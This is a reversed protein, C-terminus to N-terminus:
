RNKAMRVVVTLLGLILIALDVATGVGIIPPIALEGTFQSAIGTATEGLVFPLSLGVFAKAIATKNKGGNWPRRRSSWLGVVALIIAFAAAVYPKFNTEKTATLLRAHVHLLKDSERNGLWDVSRFTFNHEGEPVTFGGSFVTWNGGDVKYETFGVGCGDDFADLAFVTDTTADESSPTISTSPPTEDLFYIGATSQTNALLDSSRYDVTKVGDIGQLTFDITYAKWQGDDIRYEIRDLGVPLMGSDTCSLNFQTTSDVYTPASLYQPIGVRLICSPPTNDVRLMASRTIEINGANDESYWEITHEGETDITFQGGTPYNDWGGGDIRYMTSRIGSGGPDAVAFELPTSSTVYPVALTYNPTGVTLSTIPGRVVDITWECTNNDEDWETLNADFDVDAIIRYMGPTPPSVWTATFRVSDTSPELPPVVFTAFPPTVGDHFALIANDAAPADGRNEVIVSLQVPLSLGVTIPSPPLPQVPVYEPRINAKVQISTCGVNNDEQSEDVADPLDAYACMSHSGPPMATWTFSPFVQAHGILDAVLKVGVDEGVDLMQDGDGDDFLNLDFTGSATDGFNSVTVNVWSLAGEILPPAPEVNVMSIRLDPKSRVGAQTSARNNGESLEAVVDNPDVVVWLTHVGRGSADWLVSVTGSGGAALPGLPQDVGIQGAPPTGDHFRAVTATSPLIGINRVIADIRVQTGEIFPPPISFSIDGSQVALDPNAALIEIQACAQNNDEHLEAIMNNPDAVACISHTGVSTSTWTVSASGSDFYMIFPIIQDTGIQPSPPLGDHFRVGVATANRGGINRVVARIDVPTGVVVSGPPTLIVDNPTILLDPPDTVISPILKFVFADTENDLTRDFADPTTPFDSSNTVGTVYAIGSIDVVISTGKDIDSSGGLFTSYLLGTGTANIKTMFGERDSFVTDFADKTTTFDGSYTQGTVYANGLSDLDISTVTDTDSNGGIFTSYVLSSMTPNMKAVFGERGIYVTRFAGPTTPFDFSKTTGSVYVNRAADIGVSIEWERDSGGLLTSYDLKAGNADFRVVFADAYGNATADYASPTTPFNASDTWGAVYANGTPDVKISTGVDYGDGGLFSSYVLGSGAQNFKTVFADADADLGNYTTDYAGFTTPFNTGNTEGTVYAFGSSDVTVAWPWEYRDRGIFTSYVLANGQPGLKTLFGEWFVISCCWCQGTRLTYADLTRDFAGATTPYANTGPQLGSSLTTGTLYANGASDIAISAPYDLGDGGMYTAYVLASGEPNLKAVFTQHPDVCWEGQPCYCPPSCDPQAFRPAGRIWFTTNFAGATVPFDTSCTGGYVFANGAADVAISMAEDGQGMTCYWDDDHGGIFTSYVLPDIVLSQSLDRGPCDFGFSGDGRDAFSCAVERGDAQYSYPKSDRTSGVATRATIGDTSDRTAQVGDYSFRILHADAHAGILFEYKVGGATAHYVLDIGEWLERYVVSRYNPVDTQWRAPDNGFFYNSRFSLENVGSPSALNAGEFRIMYASSDVRVRGGLREDVKTAESLVFMVGDTRFAVSPNGQRYFLVGDEVQGRNETFYDSASRMTDLIRQNSPPEALDEKVEGGSSLDAVVPLVLSFIILFSATWREWFRARRLSVLAARM